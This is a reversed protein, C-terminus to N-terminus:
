ASASPRHVIWGRQPDEVIEEDAWAAAPDDFVLFYVAQGDTQARTQYEKFPVGQSAVQTLFVDAAAQSTFPGRIKIM